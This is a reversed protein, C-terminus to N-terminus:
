PSDGGSRERIEVRVPKPPCPRFVVLLLCDRVILLRPPAERVPRLKATWPSKAMASLVQAAPVTSAEPLAHVKPRVKVGVWVPVRRPVRVMKPVLRAEGRATGNCPM